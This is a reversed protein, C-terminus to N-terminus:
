HTLSPVPCTHALRSKSSDEESEHVYSGLAHTRGKFEPPSDFSKVSSVRSFREPNHPTRRSLNRDVHTPKKWRDVTPVLAQGPDRLAPTRVTLSDLSNRRKLIPSKVSIHLKPRPRFLVNSSGASSTALTPPTRLCTSEISHTGAPQVPPIPLPRYSRIDPSHAPALHPPAGPLPRPTSQM